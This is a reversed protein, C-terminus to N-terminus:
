KTKQISEIGGQPNFLIKSNSPDLPLVIGYQNVYTHQKLLVDEGLITAAVVPQPLRYYLNNKSKKTNQEAFNKIANAIPTYSIRLYLSNTSKANNDSITLGETASFAAFYFEKINENDIISTNNSTNDVAISFTYTEENKNTIGTFLKLYNDEQQKLQDAMFKLTKHDYNIEQFGILLNQRNEKLKLITGATEEAKQQITKQYKFTQAIKQEIITSDVRVRRVITDTTEYINFDAFQSFFEPIDENEIDKKCSQTIYKNNKSKMKKMNFSQLYINDYFNVTLNKDNTHLFYIQTTDIKSAPILKINTIKYSSYNSYIINKLGLLKEAFDAYPGKIYDTKEVTVEVNFYTKPLAYYFGNEVPTDLKQSVPYSTYFTSSCSALSFTITFITILRIIKM